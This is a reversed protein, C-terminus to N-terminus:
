LTGGGFSDIFSNRSFRPKFLAYQSRRGGSCIKLLRSPVQPLQLYYHVLSNVEKARSLSKGRRESQHCTLREGVSKRVEIVWGWERLKQLFGIPRTALHLAIEGIRGNAPPDCSDGVLRDAVGFERGQYGRGRRRLWPCHLQSLDVDKRRPVPSSHCLPKHAPRDICCASFPRGFDIQGYEIVIIACLTEIGTM